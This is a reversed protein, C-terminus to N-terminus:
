AAPPLKQELERWLLALAAEAARARILDRSGAFHYHEAEVGEGRALGIWVTGVPKQLSGGSPGAIGTISLAFDVELVRRAGSAMERATEASVAGHRALTEAGVGLVTEKVSNAYAVIGGLFTASAGAPDTLLKALLGGTCSEAVGLTQDRATLERVIAAARRAAIQESRM